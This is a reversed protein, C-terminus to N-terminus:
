SGGTPRSLGGASRRFRRPQDLRRDGQRQGRDHHRFALRGFHGSGRLVARPFIRAGVVSKGVLRANNPFQYEVFGRTFWMLGANMRDPNLFTGPVDLLGIIGQPSCLGCPASVECSTYLGIPMAVEIANADAGALDDRFMVLVEDFASFCLKQNGKRGKQTETRILGASERSNAPQVLRDVPSTRSRRRHRQRQRRSAPAVAAPHARAGAFGPRSAGRAAGRSRDGPFQAVNETGGRSPRLSKQILKESIQAIRWNRCSAARQGAGIPVTERLRDHM